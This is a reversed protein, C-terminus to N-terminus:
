DDFGDGRFTPRAAVFDALPIRVYFRDGRRFAEYDNLASDSFVSVRSGGALEGIQVSTIRKQSSKQALTPAVGCNVLTLFALVVVHPRWRTGQAISNIFNLKM